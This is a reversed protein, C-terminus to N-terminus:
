SIIDDLEPFNLSLMYLSTCPGRNVDLQSRRGYWMHLRVDPGICFRKDKLAVGPKTLGSPSGPVNALDEAFYLSGGAPFVMSLMDSELQVLQRLISVVNEDELDSLVDALSEGEIYQMLIYETGAANDPTPSYRYVEPTPVGASRLFALTAVESAVAFYKPVAAPYPIRAVIRFGDRMTILFIRNFGGEALKRLSEIDDPSRNVSEAALRRLGDVNFGRRREERRLQDNVSFLNSSLKPSSHRALYCAHSKCGGDQRTNM